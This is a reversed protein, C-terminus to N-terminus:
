WARGDRAPLWARMSPFAVFLLPRIKARLLPESPKPGSLAMFLRVQAAMGFQWGSSLDQAVPM